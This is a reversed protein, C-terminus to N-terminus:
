GLCNCFVAECFLNISETVYFRNVSAPRVLSGGGFIGRNELIPRIGRILNAETLIGLGLLFGM